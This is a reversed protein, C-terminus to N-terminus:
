REGPISVSPPFLLTPPAPYFLTPVEPSTLLSPSRYIRSSAASHAAFVGLPSLPWPAPPVQRGPSANRAHAPVSTNHPSRSRLFVRPLPLEFLLLVWIPLGGSCQVASGDDRADAASQVSEDAHRVLNLLMAPRCRLCHRDATSVHQRKSPLALQRLRLQRRMYGQDAAATHVDAAGRCPLLIWNWVGLQVHVARRRPAQLGRPWEGLRLVNVQLNRRRRRRRQM